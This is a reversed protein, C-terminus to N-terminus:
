ADKYKPAVLLGSPRRIVTADGRMALFNAPRKAKRQQAKRSNMLNQAKDVMLNIEEPAVHGTCVGEIWRRAEQFADIRVTHVDNFTIKAVAPVTPM